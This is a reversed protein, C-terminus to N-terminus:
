EVEIHNTVRDVSEVSRVVLEIRDRRAPSAVTGDLHVRGHDVQLGVGKLDIQERQLALRVDLRIKSDPVPSRVTSRASSAHDESIPATHSVLELHGFARH